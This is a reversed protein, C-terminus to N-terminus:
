FQISKKLFLNRTNQRLRIWFWVLLFKWPIEDLLFMAGFNGEETRKTWIVKGSLNKFGILGIWLDFSARTGVPYEKSIPVYFKRLHINFFTGIEENEMIRVDCSGFLPVELMRDRFFYPNFIGGFFIIFGLLFPYIVFLVFFERIEMEPFIQSILGSDVIYLIFSILGPIIFFIGTAMSRWNPIRFLNIRKSPEQKQVNQIWGEHRNHQSMIEYEEVTMSLLKLVYGPLLVRSKAIMVELIIFLFLISLTVSFGLAFEIFLFYNYFAHIGICILLGKLLRYIRALDNGSILYIMTFGGILGGNMMHIPLATISRLTQSWLGTDIFYLINELLGFGGGLVLGYFLGDIVSFEDQNKRFFLFIGLLKAFEECFGSLLIAKFLNGPYPNFYLITAQLALAVGASFLSFSLATYQLFPEAIRYFHFRYFTYYFSITVLNILIMLLNSSQFWEEM